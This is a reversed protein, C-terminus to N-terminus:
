KPLFYGKVIICLLCIGLLVLAVSFITALVSALPKEKVPSARTQAALAKFALDRGGLAVMFVAVGSLFLGTGLRIVWAQQKVAGIVITVIGAIFLIPTRNFVYNFIKLLRWSM